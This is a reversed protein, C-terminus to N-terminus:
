CGGVGVGVVMLVVQLRNRNMQEALMNADIGKHSFRIISLPCILAEGPSLSLSLCPCPVLSSTLGPAVRWLHAWRSPHLPDPPPTFSDFDRCGTQTVVM